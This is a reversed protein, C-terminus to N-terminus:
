AQQRRLSTVSLLANRQTHGHERRQHNPSDLVSNSDCDRKILQEFEYRGCLNCHWKERLNTLKVTQLKGGCKCHKM